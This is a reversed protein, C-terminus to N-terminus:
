KIAGKYSSLLYRIHLDYSTLFKVDYICFCLLVDCCHLNYSDPLPISFVWNLAKHQLLKFSITYVKVVTVVDAKVFITIPLTLVM